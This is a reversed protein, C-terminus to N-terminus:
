NARPVWPIRACEIGDDQLAEAQARTAEGYIPRAPAAGTAIARATEAFAPGVYDCHAEVVARIQQLAARVADPMAAPAAAAPGPAPSAQLAAPVPAVAAPPAAAGAAPAAPPAAMNGKRRLAPAMLARTVQTGACDPCAILGRAAQTEFSSSDKFWGDFDHGLACRLAYHIMFFRNAGLGEYPPRLAARM